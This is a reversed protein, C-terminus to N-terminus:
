AETKLICTLPAPLHRKPTLHAAQALPRSRSEPVTKLIFKGDHSFFFVEGSKSNSNFEIFSFRKQALSSLYAVDDIKCLQRVRAFLAPALDVFWRDIGMQDDDIERRAPRPARSSAVGKMQGGVQRHRDGRVGGM